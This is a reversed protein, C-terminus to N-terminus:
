TTLCTPAAAVDLQIGLEDMANIVIRLNHCLIKALVKNKVSVDTKSRVYGDFKTKIGDDRVRRQEAERPSCDASPETTGSLKFAAKDAQDHDRVKVCHSSITQTATRL